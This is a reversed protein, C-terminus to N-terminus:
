NHFRILTYKTFFRYDLHTVAKLMTLRFTVSLGGPSCVSSGVKSKTQAFCVVQAVRGSDEVLSLLELGRYRNLACFSTVKQLHYALYPYERIDLILKLM